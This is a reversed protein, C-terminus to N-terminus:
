ALPGVVGGRLATMVTGAVVAATEARLVTPGLGVGPGWRELEDPDWGGEPGIAVTARSLGPRSGGPQALCLGEGAVRALEELGLVATVEPLRTRRCQASAERAVRRLREVAREGREGQWRVVSRRSALPVIRDVGLETLKQTVWEPRDGKTPVFAVTIPPDPAAQTRVPGDVVLAGGPDPALHCRVWSGTGDSAIVAEDTRLRLVDALHHLERRGLFPSALDDVFVM